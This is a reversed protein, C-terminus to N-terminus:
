VMEPVEIPASTKKIANMGGEVNTLNTFGNKELVSTGIMSRYGGQCYIYYHENKDLTGLHSELKGLPIAIADRVTGQMVEGENRVDLPQGEKGVTKAFEDASVSHITNV